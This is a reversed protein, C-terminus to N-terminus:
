ALKGPVFPHGASLGGCVAWAQGNVYSSEDSGLFLAVRAVEDAVAGRQLPNLQGVKRETGRERARDFVSQTMGTEILGPCIANIRIGTGSLQYSVSQAISVVAAKSASYDTSGANSRIGAVSATGIISGSPYPKSASTIKMAPAAHKAALFVGLANVRMTELFESGAVETFVKPQGVIGANAFFIDLRGYQSIAEDIVATLAKEDAADFSRVHVDVNPYLSKMERKHTELHNDAFDCIYVAKAGNNAFQHASARGIGNPSNAGTIIVVKDKARPGASDGAVHRIKPIDEFTGESPIGEVLQKSLAQLRQKAAASM